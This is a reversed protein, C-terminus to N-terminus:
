LACVRVESLEPPPACFSEPADALSKLRALAGEITSLSLPLLDVAANSTTTTTVKPTAKGGAQVAQVKKRRAMTTSQHTHTYLGTVQPTHLPHRPNPLYEAPWAM